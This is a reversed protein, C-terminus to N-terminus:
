CGPTTGPFHNLGQAPGVKAHHGPATKVWKSGAKGIDPILSGAHVLEAVVSQGVRNRGAALFALEHPSLSKPDIDDKGGIRAVLIRAITFIVVLTVLAIIFFTLFEPGKLDLLNSPM